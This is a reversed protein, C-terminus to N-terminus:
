RRPDVPSTGVPITAVVKNTATGIVSVSNATTNGAVYAFPAAEAGFALGLVLAAWLVVFGRASAARRLNDTHNQM